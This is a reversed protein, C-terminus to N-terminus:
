TVSYSLQLTLYDDVDSALQLTVRLQILLSPSLPTLLLVPCNYRHRYSRSRDGSSATLVILLSKSSKQLQPHGDAVETGEYRSMIFTRVRSFLM